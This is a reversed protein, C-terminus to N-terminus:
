AAKERESQHELAPPEVNIKIKRPKMEEPLEHVLEIVLLGDKLSAGTIEVHEALNFKREFARTAIGQYLFKRDSSDEDKRGKITLVGGEIHIDLEDRKFGAIALSIAYRDDELAEIDYPPYGSGGQESRFANDLMTALRDFGVTTRYLPTLDLSTMQYEGFFFNVILM